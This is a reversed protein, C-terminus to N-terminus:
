ASGRVAPPATGCGEQAHAPEPALAASAAMLLPIAAALLPRGVPEFREMFKAEM